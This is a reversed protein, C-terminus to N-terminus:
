ATSGPLSQEEWTTYIYYVATLNDLRLLITINEKDMAFCKVALSAAM